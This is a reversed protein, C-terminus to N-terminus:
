EDEMAAPDAQTFGYTRQFDDHKRQEEARYNERIADPLERGLQRMKEIQWPTKLAWLVRRAAKADAVTQLVMGTSAVAALIDDDTEVGSYDLLWKQQETLTGRTFSPLNNLVPRPMDMNGAEFIIRYGPGHRDEKGVRQSRATLPSGTASKWREFASMAMVRESHTQVWFSKGPQAKDFPYKLAPSASTEDHDELEM